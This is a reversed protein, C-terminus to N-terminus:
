LNHDSLWAAVTARVQPASRELTLGHGTHSFVHLTVDQSGTYLAVQRKPAEPTFLYDNSGFLVLVPVDILRDLVTNLEFTEPLSGADGCPDRSRRAFDAAMVAPEADFFVIQRFDSETQGYYAYGSPGGPEVPERGTLCIQGQETAYDIAGNSFDQDAWAFNVLADIDGFTYAALESIAAGPSM